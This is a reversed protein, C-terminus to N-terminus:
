IRLQKLATKSQVCNKKIYVSKNRILLNWATTNIRKNSMFVFSNYKVREVKVNKNRPARDKFIKLISLQKNENESKINRQRLTSLDNIAINM